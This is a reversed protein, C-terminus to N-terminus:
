KHSYIFYVKNHTSTASIQFPRMLKLPLRGYQIFFIDLPKTMSVLNCVSLVQVHSMSKLWSQKKQFRHFYDQSIVKRTRHKYTYGGLPKQVGSGKKIFSPIHLMGNSAIEDAHKM